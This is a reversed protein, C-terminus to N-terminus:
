MRQTLEDAVWMALQRAATVAVRTQGCLVYQILM